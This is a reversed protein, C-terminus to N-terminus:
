FSVSVSSVFPKTTVNKDNIFNWNRPPPPPPPPPPGAGMGKGVGISWTFFVFFTNAFKGRPKQRKEVFNWSYLFYHQGRASSLATKSSRLSRPWPSSAKLGLGLFEFHTRSALSTRLSEVETSYKLGFFRCFYYILWTCTLISCYLIIIRTVVM